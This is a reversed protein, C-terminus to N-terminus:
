IERLHLSNFRLIIEQNVYIIPESVLVRATYANYLSGDLKSSKMDRMFKKHETEDKIMLVKQLIALDRNDLYNLIECFESINNESINNIELNNNNEM